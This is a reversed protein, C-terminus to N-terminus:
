DPNEVFSSSVSDVSEVSSGGDSQDSGGIVKETDPESSIFAPPTSQQNFFPHFGSPAVHREVVPPQFAMQAHRIDEHIEIDQALTATFIRRFESNVGCFKVAKTSSCALGRISDVFTSIGNSGVFSLDQMNFIVEYGRLNDLCHVFPEITELDIRGRLHIVMMTESLEEFKAEM